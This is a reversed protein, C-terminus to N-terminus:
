LAPRVLARILQSFLWPMPLHPQVKRVEALPQGPRHRVVRLCGCHRLARGDVRPAVYADLVDAAVPVAQQQLIGRQQLALIHRRHVIAQLVVVKPHLM